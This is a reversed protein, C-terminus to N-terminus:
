TVEIIPQEDSYYDMQVPTDADGFTFTLDKNAMEMERQKAM